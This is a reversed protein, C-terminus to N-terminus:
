RGVPPCDPCPHPPPGGKFYSVMYTVDVGNFSCSANVDGAAFLVGHIGCNCTFPPPAGGKFYSVSYVVDVGNFSGTNNADGIVYACGSTTDRVTLAGSMQTPHFMCLYFFHGVSDAHLTFVDGPNLAGSNWHNASTDTSTHTMSGFNIWRLNQGINVATDPPVFAFDIIHIDLAVSDPRGVIITGNMILGHILCHYHHVGESNFTDAFIQGPILTGSNWAGDNATTTHNRAGRNVWGVSQGVNIQIVQPSYFNDWINIETDFPAPNVTITGTMISHHICHYPFTGSSDFKFSYSQLHTLDGSNWIGNDSTTTHTATGNNTWTVSDGFNITIANPNFAFDVISVQHNVAFVTLPFLLVIGLMTATFKPTM